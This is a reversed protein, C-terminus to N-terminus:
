SRPANWAAVEEITLAIPATSPVRQSLARWLRTATPARVDARALLEEDAFIERPPGDALVRGGGLLVVREAFLPVLDVAHTAAVLTTGAATIARLLEVVALEGAPDLGATPEDLLLLRPAMALIGALCARRQEGFSLAEILRDELAALGTRALAARARRRAEDPSAGQNAPGFCADELVTSGFLQDNPNQFLLGAGALVADRPARVERGFIRLSGGWAPLLGVAAKLVTTKGAGNGGLLAVREGAAVDLRLERIAPRERRHGVAEARLSLAATVM